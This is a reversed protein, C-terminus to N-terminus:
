WAPADPVTPLRAKALLLIRHRGARDVCPRRAAPLLAARWAPAPYGRNPRLRAAPVLSASPRAHRPYSQRDARRDHRVPKPLEVDEARGGARAPPRPVVREAHLVALLSVPRYGGHQLDRRRAAQRSFGRLGLSRRGFPDWADGHLSSDCRLGFRFGGKVDPM